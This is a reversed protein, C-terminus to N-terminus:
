TYFGQEDRNGLQAHLKDLHLYITDSTQKQMLIKNEAALNSYIIQICM